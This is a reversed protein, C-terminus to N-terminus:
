RDGKDEGVGSAIVFAAYLEPETKGRRVFVRLVLIHVLITLDPLQFRSAFGVFLLKRSTRTKLM